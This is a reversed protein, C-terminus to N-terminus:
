NAEPPSVAAGHREWWRAARERTWPEALEVAALRAALDEATQVRGVPDKVLCSLVVADLAEPIAQDAHRSPPAPVENAHALLMAPYTREDFVPRGALLWYAVCGLAYLDARGDVPGKGLAVEPAMYSPTGHIMGTQSLRLDDESPLKAHWKV